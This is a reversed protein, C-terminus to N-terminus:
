AREVARTFARKWLRENVQAEVEGLPRSADIVVANPIRAGLELFGHRDEELLRPDHGEKRQTALEGPVDLVVVEQPPPCTRALLWLYGRKLRVHPPRPPLHADFVYRDFIVTRGCARHVFGIAWCRWARLPRFAIRASRRMAGGGNQGGWLGMYIPSVPLPYSARIRDAITSKGAGDVGLLALAIGRRRVPILLTEAVRGLAGAVLRTSAGVANRAFFWGLVHRRLALLETWREQEVCGLVRGPTWGPPLAARVLGAVPGGAAEPRALAKLRARNRPSFLRKDLLCHLFLTWFEDQARLRWMTGERVRRRLCAEALSTRLAFHPGFALDSVVDLQLWAAAVSDWRVFFSHSGRGLSFVRAFGREELVVHAFSADDSAVLVDVDDPGRSGDPERLLCWHVDRAELETAVAALIGDPGQGQIPSRDWSSRSAPRDVEGRGGRRRALGSRTRRIERWVRRRAPADSAIAVRAEVIRTFGDLDVDDSIPLRALSFRDENWRSLGGKVACASSFGAGRVLDRVRADYYGFPYSFAEAGGVHEDLAERSIHIDKRADRRSLVDLEAHTAGHGGCEIGVAAAEAVQTWTMMPRSGEGLAELWRSTSGILGTTLYLTARFGHRVLVPLAETHFDALGDDFTLVVPREPLLGASARALYETVPLVGFGGDALLAMQEAFREPSVVFRRYPPAADRSVSHYLLIPVARRIDM